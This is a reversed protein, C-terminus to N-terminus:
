RYKFCYRDYDINKIQNLLNNKDNDFFPPKGILIMYMIVGVSWLDCKQDYNGTIVEPAMYM